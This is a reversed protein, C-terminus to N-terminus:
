LRKQEINPLGVRKDRAFIIMFNDIGANMHLSLGPSQLPIYALLSFLFGLLELSIHISDIWPVEIGSM